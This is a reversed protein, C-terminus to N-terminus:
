VPISFLMRTGIDRPTSRDITVDGGLLRAILKALPLGLGVGQTSRDLQEFRKFVQEDKGVPIGVGTDTVSFVVMKDKVEFDLEVSGNRTFKIGNGLLNILVQEVRTRDTVAVLSDYHERAMRVAINDPAQPAVTAIAMRCIEVIDVPAKKIELKQNDVEAIELVDNVMRQVLDNNLDILQVYKNLYPRKEDTVCDAILRSYDAIADLPAKIEHSMNNIFETKKRESTLARDRAAILEHQTALVNDREAKLDNNSVVLNQSLRRTRRYMIMLWVLLGLLIPLLIIFIILYTHHQRHTMRLQALELASNKEKLDDMETALRLETYHDAARNEIYEELEAIYERSASIQTSIDGTAEAGQVLWRLMRRHEGKNGEKSMYNKLLAVAKDWDKHAVRYAIEARQNTNFDARVDSNTAVLKGIQKYVSELEDKSLGEFNQLMRRYCVYRSVAYDRYRRGEDSYRKELADIIQLLRRDANVAREQREMDTYAIAANTLFLNDLAYIENPLKALLNDLRDFCQSLLEEQTTFSLYVTLTFLEEIRQNLDQPTMPGDSYKTSEIRPLLQRLRKQREKEDARRARYIEHVINIFVVTSLQDQSAPLKKATNLIVRSASDNSFYLSTIQRLVDLKVDDRGMRVAQNYLDRAAVSRTKRSSLDFIDYYLRLSDQATKTESLQSRLMSIVADPNSPLAADATVTILATMCVAALVFKLRLLKM